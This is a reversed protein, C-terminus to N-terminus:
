NLGPVRILLRDGTWPTAPNKSAIAGYACRMRRFVSRWPMEPHGMGSFNMAKMNLELFADLAISGSDRLASYRYRPPRWRREPRGSKPQRELTKGACNICITQV